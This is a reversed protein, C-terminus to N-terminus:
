AAPTAGPFVHLLREDKKIKLLTVLWKRCCRRVKWREQSFDKRTRFGKKGPIREQGLSGRIRFVERKWEETRKDYTDSLTCMTKKMFLFSLTDFYMQHNRKPVSKASKVSFFLSFRHKGHLGHRFLFLYCAFTLKSM